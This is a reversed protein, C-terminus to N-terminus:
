FPQCITDQEESSIGVGTDVVSLVLAPRRHRASDAGFPDADGRTATLERWQAIFEVRGHPTYRIANSLLNSLLRGLRVRDTDIEWGAAAECRNVLTLGKKRAAASHEDLLAALFPALPFLTREPRQ